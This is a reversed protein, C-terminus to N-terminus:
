SAGIGGVSKQFFMHCGRVNTMNGRSSPMGSSAKKSLSDLFRQTFIITGCTAAWCSATPTVTFLPSPDHRFYRVLMDGKESVVKCNLTSGRATTEPLDARLASSWVEKEYDQLVWVKSIITDGDGDMHMDGIGFTADMHLLHASDTAKPSQM